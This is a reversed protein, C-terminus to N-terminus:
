ISEVLLKVKVKKNGAKVEINHPGTEKIHKELIIFDPNIDAGISEKIAIAIEPAHLSAFLHGKENVKARIVVEKNEIEHINKSLLDGQIKREVELEAKLVDIKKLAEPTAVKVAGQPILFNLAYGDTVDKVDYKKGIKQVDKLLIVRM